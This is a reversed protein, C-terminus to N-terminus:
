RPSVVKPAQHHQQHRQVWRLGILCAALSLVLLVIAMVSVIVLKRPASSELAPAPLRLDAQQRCHPCQTQTGILEAPCRIPGGCRSCVAQLQKTRNM